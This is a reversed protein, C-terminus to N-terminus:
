AFLVPSGYESVSHRIIGAKLLVQIQRDLEQIHHPAVAYPRKYIPTDDKLTVDLDLQRRPPPRPTDRTEFVDPEFRRLREVLADTTEPPLHRLHFRVDEEVYSFSTRAAPVVSASCSNSAFPFFHSNKREPISNRPNM